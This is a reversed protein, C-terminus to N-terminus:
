FISVTYEDSRMLWDGPSHKFFYIKSYTENQTKRYITIFWFKYLNVIM